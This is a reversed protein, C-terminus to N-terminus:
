WTLGKPNQRMHRNEENPIPGSWTRISRRMHAPYDGTRFGIRSLPQGPKSTIIVCASKRMVYNMDAKQLEKQKEWAAINLHAEIKAIPGSEETEEEYIRNLNEELQNMEMNPTLNGIYIRKRYVRDNIPSLQQKPNGVWPKVSIREPWTTEETWKNVLSAPTVFQVRFMSSHHSKSFAEVKVERLNTWKNFEGKLSSETEEPGSKVALCLHKLQPSQNSYASVTSKGHTWGTQKLNRQKGTLNHQVKDSYRPKVKPSNNDRSLTSSETPLTSPLTQSTIAINNCQAQKGAVLLNEKVAHLTSSCYNMLQLSEAQLGPLIGLNEVCYKVKVNENRFVSIIEKINGEITTKNTICTGPLIEKARRWADFSLSEISLLYRVAENDDLQGTIYQCVGLADNLQLKDPM